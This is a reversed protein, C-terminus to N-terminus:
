EVEPAPDVVDAYQLRAVSALKPREVPVESLEIRVRRRDGETLLLSQLSSMLAQFMQGSRKPMREHEEGNEDVRGTVVGRPAVAPLELHQLDRLLQYPDGPRYDGTGQVQLDQSLYARALGLDSPATLIFRLGRENAVHLTYGADRPGTASGDFATFRFPLDGETVAELADAVRLRPASVTQTM